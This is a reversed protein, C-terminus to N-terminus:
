AARVAARPLVARDLRLPVVGPVRCLYAFAVGAALGLLINAGIVCVAATLLATVAGPEFLQRWAPRSLAAASVVLMVALVSAPFAGCLAALSSGFAVALAMKVGGLLLISGNTRAGFAHQGALGGAGHCMPMAGFGCGVLNMVGVSRAVAGVAMPREPFLERSLVCVAVVSNLLTLPVQPLAAVTFSSAFDAVGPPAWRPLWVGASVERLAGPSGVGALVLGGAFLVLAAPMRRVIMGAAVVGLSVAAIVYGASGGWAGGGSMLMSWAKIALTVGLALQVGRVAPRPIFREVREALGLWGIVLVIASVSAGAAVIQPATLGQTLAIAAIAKMPQVAMPVRFLLGTVVNFVGAFFLAAAFDLHNTASMAVLLPLFTGLDGLSGSVEGGNLRATRLNDRIAALM